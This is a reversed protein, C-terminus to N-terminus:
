ESELSNGVEVIQPVVPASSAASPDLFPVPPLDSTMQESNSSVLSTDKSSIYEELQLKGVSAVKVEASVGTEFVQVPEMEVIDYSIVKNNENFEACLILHRNKGPVSGLLAIPELIKEEYSHITDVFRNAYSDNILLTNQDNTLEWDNEIVESSIAEAENEEQFKLNALNIKVNGVIEQNGDFDEYVSTIYYSNDENENLAGFTLYLYNTGSTVRSGIFALPTLVTEEEAPKIEQYRVFADKEVLNVSSENVVWEGQTNAVDTVLSIPKEEPNEINEEAIPEEKPEEPEVAEPNENSAEELEAETKNEEANNEDVKTEETKEAEAKDSDIKTIEAPTIVSVEIEDAAISPIVSVPVSGYVEKDTEVIALAAQVEENKVAEKGDSKIDDVVTLRKREEELMKQRREYAEKNAKEKRINDLEEQSVYINAAKDLLDGHYIETTNSTDSYPLYIYGIFQQWGVPSWAGVWREQYGISAGGEKIYVQTGDESIATVWAVHNSWVIISNVAPTDTVYYGSNAADYAWQGANHWGPLAIGTQDYVLQWVTWTCNRYGGVYPNRAYNQQYEGEQALVPTVAYSPVALFSSLALSVAATKRLVRFNIKKNKCLVM